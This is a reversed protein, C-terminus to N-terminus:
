SAAAVPPVARAVMEYLVRSDTPVAQQDFAVVPVRTAFGRTRLVDVVRAGLGDPASPDTVVASPVIEGLLRSADAMSAATLVTAGIARLDDALRECRGPGADVVLLVM